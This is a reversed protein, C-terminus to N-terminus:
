KKIISTTEWSKILRAQKFMKKLEDLAEKQRTSL